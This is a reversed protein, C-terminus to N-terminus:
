EGLRRKTVAIPFSEIESAWLTEGGLERWILPFGGVGDFLSAMTAPRDFQKYLRSLVWRWPPLAISNGMAKYRGTNASERHVKGNSDIWEGIDTWNDPFGQLRECELPTLRRIFKGRGPKVEMVAMPDHMCNLTQCVDPTLHTAIHAQGNGVCVPRFLLPIQNGGTGMRAQLTPVHQGCERIVDCAHTMDLIICDEVPDGVGAASVGSAGEQKTRSEESNGSVSEREFLIEPASEGGFDAVLAIRRRSQPVGWFQANLVRWAISWGDGMICGSTRWKGKPPEPIVADPEVIRAIEELVRRFDEGKHSSFAGAVNEWVMYRPSATGLTAESYERMERVLRTQEFFLVSRKGEFGM